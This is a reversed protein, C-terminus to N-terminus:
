PNIFGNTLRKKMDVNADDLITQCEALKKDFSELEVADTNV